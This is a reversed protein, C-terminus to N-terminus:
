LYHKLCMPMIELFPKLIVIAVWLLSQQLCMNGHEADHYTITVEPDTYFLCCVELETDYDLCMAGSHIENDLSSAKPEINHHLSIAKHQIGCEGWTSSIRGQHTIYGHSPTEHEIGHIVFTEPEIEHVFLTNDQNIKM